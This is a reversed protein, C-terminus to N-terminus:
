IQNVSSLVGLIPSIHLIINLGNHREWMCLESIVFVVSLCVLIYLGFSSCLLVDRELWM